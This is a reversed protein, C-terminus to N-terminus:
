SSDGRENLLWGGLVIRDKECKADTRFLEGLFSEKVGCPLKRYGMGFKDRIFTCAAAVLQPRKLTATRGTASIWSYGPALMPKIWPLVRAQFRRMHVLWEISILEDVFKVLWAVRKESMGIEFRTYDVWFGVFDMQFGGRFKDFSFPLGAMELLTIFRWLSLWRNGGGSVMHIDDVFILAFFWDDLMANLAFRGVVGMLRAWWYAASAVGFTGTKNLWITDSSASTKCALVGWDDEKVKARRHAKAVDANLGFIMREGAAVSLNMIAALERPGPNELRDTINIENNLQM